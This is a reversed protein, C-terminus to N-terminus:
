AMKNLNFNPSKQFTAILFHKGFLSSLNEHEVLMEDCSQNSLANNIM